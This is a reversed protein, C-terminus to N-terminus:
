DFSIVAARSDRHPRWKPPGCRAVDGFPRPRRGCPGSAGRLQTFHWWRGAPCRARSHSRATMAVIAAQLGRVEGRAKDAVVSLMPTVTVTGVPALAPAQQDARRLLDAGRFLGASGRTGTM